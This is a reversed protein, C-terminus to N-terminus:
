PLECNNFPQSPDAIKDCPDKTRKPQRANTKEIISSILSSYYCFEGLAVFIKLECRALHM